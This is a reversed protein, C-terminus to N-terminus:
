FLLSSSRAELFSVSSLSSVQAQLKSTNYQNWTRNLQASSSMDNDISGRLFLQPFSLSPLPLSETLRALPLRQEKSRRLACSSSVKDMAYVAGFNYSPPQTASALNFSHQVQFAPDTSLVKSLDAKAGDFTFNTLHTM